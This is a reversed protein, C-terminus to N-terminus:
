PLRARLPAAVPVSPAEGEPDHRTMQRHSTPHGGGSVGEAVDSLCPSSRRRGRAIFLFSRPHHMSGLLSRPVDRSGELLVRTVVTRAWSASGQRAPPRWKCAPAGEDSAANVSLATLRKGSGVLENLPIM